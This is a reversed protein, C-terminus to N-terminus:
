RSFFFVVKKKKQQQKNLSNTASTCAHVDRLNSTLHQRYKANKKEEVTTRNNKPFADFFFFFSGTISHPSQLFALGTGCASNSQGKKKKIETRLDEKKERKINDYTEKVRGEKEERKKKKPASLAEM